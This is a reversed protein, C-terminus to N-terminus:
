PANFNIMTYHAYNRRITGVSGGTVNSPNQVTAIAGVRLYYDRKVKFYANNRPTTLDFHLKYTTNDDIVIAPSFSQQFNDGDPNHSTYQDGVHVDTSAYLRVNSLRVEPDGAQLSFTAVIENGELVINVNKVRIYPKVKFDQANDGKHFIITDIHFPYFNSANFNISYEGAFFQKDQYEGTYDVIRTLLGPAYGLEQLQLRSGNLVDTEVLDGTVEDLIGGKITANPGDYNDIKFMDCASLAIFAVVLLLFQKIHLM